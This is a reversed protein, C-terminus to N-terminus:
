PYNWLMLMQCHKDYYDMDDAWDRLVCVAWAHFISIFYLLCVPITILLTLAIVALWLSWAVTRFVAKKM